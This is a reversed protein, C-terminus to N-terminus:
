EWKTITQSPEFNQQLELLGASKNWLYRSQAMSRNRHGLKRETLERKLEFATAVDRELVSRKTSNAQQKASSPSDLCANSVSFRYQKSDTKLRPKFEGVESVRKPVMPPNPDRLKRSSKSMRIVRNIKDFNGFAKNESAHFPDTQPLLGSEQHRSTLKFTSDLTPRHSLHAQKILKKM